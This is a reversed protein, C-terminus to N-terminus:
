PCLDILDMLFVRLFVINSEGVLVSKLVGEIIVKIVCPKTFLLNHILLDFIQHKKKVKYIM